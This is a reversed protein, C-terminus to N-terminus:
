LSFGPWHARPLYGRIITYGGVLPKGPVHQICHEENDEHERGDTNGQVEVPARVDAVPALLQPGTKEHAHQQARHQTNHRQTQGDIGADAEKQTGARQPVGEDPECEKDGM